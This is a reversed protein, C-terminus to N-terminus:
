SDVPELTGLRSVGRRMIQRALRARRVRQGTSLVAAQGDRRRRIEAALAAPVGFEALRSIAETKTILEGTSLV